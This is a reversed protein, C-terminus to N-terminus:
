TIIATLNVLEGLSQKLSETNKQLLFRASVMSHNYWLISYAFTHCSGKGISEATSSAQYPLGAPAQAERSACPNVTGEPVHLYGCAKKQFLIM